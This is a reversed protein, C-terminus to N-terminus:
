GRKFLGDPRFLLLLIVAVFGIADKWGSSM